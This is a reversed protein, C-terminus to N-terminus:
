EVTAEWDGVKKVYASGYGVGDLVVGSVRVTVAKASRRGAVYVKFSGSFTGDKAKYKLKLKAPVGDPFSLDERIGPFAAAVAAQDVRLRAGSAFGGGVPAAQASAGDPLNECSVTGDEGFWLLCAVSAKKKAWSVAVACEKEGVLLRSGTNVRTRRGSVLLRTSTSVRTGDALTGRVTVRGKKKVAVALTNYPANTSSAAKWAVVYNGKWRDLAQASRAKSDADRAAFMDRSGDVLYPGFAGSLSHLGLAIDLLQPSTKGALARFTGDVTSGKVTIAKQGTLRITVTLRSAGSKRNPKGAKVRIMGVVADNANTDVLYGNYTAARDLQFPADTPWLVRRGEQPEPQPQPQPEPQPQPQPEPAPAAIDFHASATGAYNGKFTVTVTATGPEVNDSYAIDYDVGAALPRGGCLVSAAPEKATGDGVYGGEPLALTIEAADATVELPTIVLAGNAVGVDYNATVDEEGSLIVVDGADTIVGEYPGGVDTGKASFAVNHTHGSVLGEAVVGTIEIESGTYANTESQGAFTVTRPTITLTANTTFAIYGPASAEVWVTVNTVDVFTPPTDGFPLALGGPSGSPPALGGPSGGEGVAYRLVLGAIAKTAIGIGHGEGDYVGAYDALAIDDATFDKGVRIAESATGACVTGAREAGAAAEASRESEFNNSLTRVLRFGLDNDVVYSPHVNSRISSTCVDASIGWSGGRRMRYSGSSSRDLCWEWVNGHMDYLGWANPKRTGVTHTQRTSGVASNDYYWMYDGNAADGYSYITTTGARCAYEWQAETPLDLTAIGSKLRLVGVTDADGRIMDWSVKEVPRMASDVENTFESPNDGTVLEWQRQTTEFVACYFANSIETETSGGMMFSGPAILRMVLKDTKYLDNTIPISSVCPVDSVSPDASDDFYAVPYFAANTGGSLDIVCYDPMKLYAVTFTVNTSFFDIGQAALDWTVVHSGNSGALAAADATLAAATSVYNSGTENDTAVISLFPKNWDPLGSWNGGVDFTLDVKGDWPEHVTATVNSVSPKPLITFEVTTDGVLPPLMTVTMTAKGSNVNNSCSIEYQNATLLDVGDLSVVVKPVVAKGTWPYGQPDIGNVFIEKFVATVTVDNTPMLFSTESASMDAFDVGDCYAWQVFAEGPQPYSATVTVVSGEAALVNTTSGGEVTVTHFPAVWTRVFKKGSLSGTVDTEATFPSGSVPTASGADGGAAVAIAIGASPNITVTGGSGNDGGGIGAGGNRCTATVEGGNVTVTGGSGKNGGGIGAGGNYGEATVKGGNVTVTGGADQFGGGIGASATGGKATVEGGNVTVTGGSGYQGGGIGAGGSGGRVRVTGGNVTVTGCSGGNDGGIGAALDSGKATLRGRNAGDSQAWITLSNTVNNNVDVNIGSNAALEVGDCLILNVDGKVSIRADNTVSGDVVYWGNTLETQGTYITYADCLKIPNDPDAPDLYPAVTKTRVFKKGNLFGTVDTQAMFPSGDIPTASGENAGASVAIAMGASPKVTVTGGIGGDGTATVEGGNVTVTGGSGNQGAGIGASGRNGTATVKGGNVTVTGGSGAEGGGIGAGGIGGKTTLKGMSAGDSQAWITLSNTVNNYVDVTIGVNAKLEVNDKLILNVDGNVVIRTGNTVSGEVVYWGSTLTDQGTYLTYTDCAKIPKDADTPDLYTPLAETRVFKKGDLVDTVDTEAMFPSGDIPSFSGEDDGAAVAIAMGASPKVTVTGGSGNYGAGIGAASNGQATVEGGNITVTGGAGNYGGGIGAGGEYGGTATVEGGNITVTGGAGKYGGGIGASGNRGTATVKGGTVTVEGGAGLDGGGIGAGGDYATAKVEGGTVTVTGGSGGYGGGIGAGGNWGYATLKGMNAGASQAWITLRNTVNNNVDVTIGARATLSANDKLILNVDGNVVIRTIDNVNVSGEVVYWGTDLTDQGNYQTCAATKSQSGPETPDIYSVDIAHAAMAAAMAVALLLKAMLAKPKM